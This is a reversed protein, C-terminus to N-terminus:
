STALIAAVRGARMVDYAPRYGRETGCRECRIAPFAHASVCILHQAGLKERKQCWGDYTGIELKKNRDQVEVITLTSRPPKGYRIVVDCQRLNGSATEPLQKNHEILADPTLTKELLAVAREILRWRPEVPLTM